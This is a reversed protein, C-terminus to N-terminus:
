FYRSGFSRSSHGPAPSIQFMFQSNQEVRLILHLLSAEQVWQLRRPAGQLYGLMALGTLASSRSDFRFSLRNLFLFCSLAASSVRSGKGLGVIPGQPEICANGPRLTSPPPPAAPEAANPLNPTSKDMPIAPAGNQCGLAWPPANTLTFPSTLLRAASSLVGSPPSRGISHLLLQSNQADLFIQHELSDPRGYGVQRRGTAHLARASLVTHHSWNAVMAPASTLRALIWCQRYPRCICAM